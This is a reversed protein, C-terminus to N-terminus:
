VVVERPAVAYEANKGVAHRHAERPKAEEHGEELVFGVPLEYNEDFEKTVKLASGGVDHGYAFKFIEAINKPTEGVPFYQDLEDSILHTQDQGVNSLIQMAAARNRRIKEYLALRQPIEEVTVVRQPAISLACGDEIGQAGGQGQHPLMPHAADGALVLRGRHWTTNPPWYLLPWLKIDTAKNVVALVNPHFGKLRELVDPKEVTALYDEKTVKKEMNKDLYLVVFNPIERAGNDTMIRIIPKEGAAGRHWWQTKSDKEIAEAPILFRYCMNYHAPPAPQVNEELVFETALSHIGDAGVVLDGSVVAGDALTISAAEPNYSVVASQLHISAPRGPGSPDTAMTKLMNHLDVRHALWLDVGGYRARNADHSVINQTELTFPDVFAQVQGRVFHEKVPDLGWALLFRGVNPPVTIATGVERNLASREYIQVTHGAWRLAVAALLGAIGAEVIIINLPM